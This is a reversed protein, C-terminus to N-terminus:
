VFVEVGEVKGISQRAPEIIPVKSIPPVNILYTLIILIASLHKM